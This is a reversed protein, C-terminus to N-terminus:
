WTVELGLREAFDEATKRAEGRESLLAAAHRALDECAARAEDRQSQMARIDSETKLWLRKFSESDRRLKDKSGTSQCGYYELVATVMRSKAGRCHEFLERSPAVTALHRELSRRYTEVERVKDSPVCEQISLWKPCTRSYNILRGPRPLEFLWGLKPDASKPIFSM